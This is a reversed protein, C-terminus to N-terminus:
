LAGIEEPTTAFSAYEIVSWDLDYRTYGPHKAIYWAMILEAQDESGDWNDVAMLPIRDDFVRCELLLKQDSRM